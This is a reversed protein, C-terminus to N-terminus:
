AIRTLEFSGGLLAVTNSANSTNQAMQVAITGATSVTFTGEIVVMLVVAAQTFLDAVDTTTTSHQVAVAAATYGMATSELASLVATTYHFAYKIGGTGSAVTSPLVCRFKYTGIVVAGSLGTVTAYTVTANATVPASCRYVDDIFLNAGSTLGVTGTVAPITVTNQGAIAAPTVAIEGSTAGAISISTSVSQTVGIGVMTITAAATYTVLYAAVSGAPIVTIGSVTVGTGGGLTAPWTTTNGYYFIFSAGIKGVLGTNGAIINAATDTTDSFAVTQTGTRSVNGGNIAAATITGAGVTNIATIQPSTVGMALAISATFIHNFTVTPAAATGGIVGYYQAEQMPGIINTIPVTVNTGGALTQVFATANKITVFFTAGSVFAGIATVIQAATATTDTFAAVPGTRVILGNLIATATLTGNGVTTLPTSVIDTTLGSGSLAAIQGTTATAIVAGGNDVVVQESGTLLGSIAIAGATM